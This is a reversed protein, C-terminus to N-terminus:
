NNAAMTGGWCNLRLVPSGNLCPSLGPAWGYGLPLLGISLQLSRCWSALMVNNWTWTQCTAGGGRARSAPMYWKAASPGPTDQAPRQEEVAEAAQVAEAAESPGPEERCRLERQGGEAELPGPRERTPRQEQDAKAAESPQSM